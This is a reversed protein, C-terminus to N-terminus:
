TKNTELYEIGLMVGPDVFILQFFLYILVLRTFM